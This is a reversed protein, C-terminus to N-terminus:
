PSEFGNVFLADPLLGCSGGLPLHIAKLAFRGDKSTAQPTYRATASIAYRGDSSQAPTSFAGAVAFRSAGPRHDQAQVGSCAVALTTLWVRVSGAWNSRSGPRVEARETPTGVVYHKSSRM